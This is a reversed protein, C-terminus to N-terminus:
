QNCRKVLEDYNVVGLVADEDKYLGKVVMEKFGMTRYFKGAQENCKRRFVFVSNFPRIEECMEKLLRKGYGKRPAIVSIFLIEVNEGTSVQWVIYGFRKHLCYAGAYQSLREQIEKIKRM